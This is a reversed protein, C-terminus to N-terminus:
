ARPAVYEFRKQMGRKEEVLKLIGGVYEDNTLITAM